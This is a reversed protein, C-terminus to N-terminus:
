WLSSSTSFSSSLRFFHFCVFTPSSFFKQFNSPRILELLNSDHLAACFAAESHLIWIAWRSPYNVDFEGPLARYHLVFSECFIGNFYWFVSPRACRYNTKPLGSLVSKEFFKNCELHLRARMMCNRCVSEVFNAFLNERQNKVASQLISKSNKSQLVHLIQDNFSSNHNFILHSSGLPVKSM